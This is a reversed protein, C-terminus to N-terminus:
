EEQMYREGDPEAARKEREGKRTMGSEGDKANMIASNLCEETGWDGPM